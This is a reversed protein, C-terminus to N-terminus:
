DTDSLIDNDLSLYQFLSRKAKHNGPLFPATPTPRPGSASAKASLPSQSSPNANQARSSDRQADKLFHRSNRFFLPSVGRETIQLKWMCPLWWFGALDADWIRKRQPNHELILPLMQSRLPNVQSAPTKNSVSPSSATLFVRNQLYNNPSSFVKM